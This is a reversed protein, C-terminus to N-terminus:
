WDRAWLRAESRVCQFVGHEQSESWLRDNPLFQTTERSNTTSALWERVIRMRDNSQPEHTLVVQLVLEELMSRAAAGWFPNAADDLHQKAKHRRVFAAVDQRLEPSSADLAKLDRSAATQHM